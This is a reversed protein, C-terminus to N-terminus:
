QDYNNEKMLRDFTIKDKTYVEKSENKKYQEDWETKKWVPHEHVFLDKQIFKYKGLYKAKSTEFNDCFVSCFDPHYIYNQRDYYTRGVINLTSTRRQTGDPYHIFQDLDDGFDNIIELDFGDKLFVMDDSTNILIDWEAIRYINKNIADIKNKSQGYVPMVKEGYSKIKEIMEENCMTEDDTDLTCLIIYNESKALSIINDLCKIFKLPRSRSAFNILVTM